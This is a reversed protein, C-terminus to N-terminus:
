LREPDPPVILAIEYSGARSRARGRSWARGETKDDEESSARANNNCGRAKAWLCQCFHHAPCTVKYLGEAAGSPLPRRPAGARAQGQWTQRGPQSTECDRQISSEIGPICESEDM